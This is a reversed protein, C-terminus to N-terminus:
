QWSLYTCYARCTRYRGSLWGVQAPQGAQTKLTNLCNRGLSPLKATGLRAQLMSYLLGQLLQRRRGPRMSAVTPLLGKGAGEGAGPPSRGILLRRTSTGLRWYGM